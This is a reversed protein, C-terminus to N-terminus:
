FRLFLCFFPLIETILLCVFWEGEINERYQVSSRFFCAVLWLGKRKKKLLWGKMDLFHSLGTNYSFFLFKSLRLWFLFLSLPFPFCELFPPLFALFDFPTWLLICFVLGFKPAM